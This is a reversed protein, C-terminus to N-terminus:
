LEFELKDSLPFALPYLSIIRLYERLTQKFSDVEKYSWNSQLYELNNDLDNIANVTWYIEYEM